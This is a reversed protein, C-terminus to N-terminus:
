TTVTRRYFSGRDPWYKDPNIFPPYVDKGDVGSWDFDILVVRNAGIDFRINYVFDGHVYQKEKLKSLIFKLQQHIEPDHWEDDTLERLNLKEMVVVTYHGLSTISILDPAFGCTYCYLHVDQNYSFCYKVVVEKNDSEIVQADFVFGKINELYRINFRVNPERRESFTSLYPFRGAPLFGISEQSRFEQLNKRLSAFLKTIQLNMVFDQNWVLPYIPTLRECITETDTNVIGTVSFTDGCLELLFCPYQASSTHQDPLNKEYYAIKSLDDNVDTDKGNKTIRLYCYVAGISFQCTGDTVHTDKDDCEICPPAHGTYKKFQEIFQHTRTFDRSTLLEGIFKCDISSVAIHNLDQVFQSFIPNMFCIPLPPEAMARHMCRKLVTIFHEPEQIIKVRKNSSSEYLEDMDDGSIPVAVIVADEETLGLDKLDRSAKLPEEKNDELKRQDFTSKNKYILLDSVDVSSLKNPNEDHVAKRFRDISTYSVALDCSVVYIFITSADYKM